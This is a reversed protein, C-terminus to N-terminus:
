LSPIQFDEYGQISKVLSLYHEAEEKHGITMLATLHKNVYGIFAPERTFMEVYGPHMYIYMLNSSKVEGICLQLAKSYSIGRARLYFIQEAIKGKLQKSKSPYVIFAHKVKVSEMIEKLKDESTLNYEHPMLHVYGHETVIKVSEELPFDKELEELGYRDLREKLKAGFDHHPNKKYYNALTIKIFEDDEMGFISYLISLEVGTKPHQKGTLRDWNVLRLEDEFFYKGTPVAYYAALRHVPVETIVLDKVFVWGGTKPLLKPMNKSKSQQHSEFGCSGTSWKEM